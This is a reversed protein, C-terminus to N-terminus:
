LRTMPGGSSAGPESAIIPPIPRIARHHAPLPVSTMACEIGSRPGGAGCGRAVPVRGVGPPEGPLPRPGRGLHVPAKGVEVHMAWRSCQSGTVRSRSTSRTSCGGSHRNKSASSCRVSPANRRRRGRGPRRAASGLAASPRRWATRPCARRSGSDLVHRGVVLGPLRTACWRSPKAPRSRRPGARARRGSRRRHGRVPLVQVDGARPADHRAPRQRLEVRVRPREVLDSEASRGVRATVHAAVHSGGPDVGVLGLLREAQIGHAVQLSRDHTAPHRAEAPQDLARRDGSSFSEAHSSSTWRRPM